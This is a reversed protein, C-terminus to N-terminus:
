EVRSLKPSMVVKQPERLIFISLCIYYKIISKRCDIAKQLSSVARLGGKWTVGWRPAARTGLYFQRSFSFAFNEIRTDKARQIRTSDALNQFKASDGQEGRCKSDALNQFKASDGQEGRCEHLM